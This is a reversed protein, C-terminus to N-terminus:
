VAGQMRGVAMTVARVAKELELEYIDLATVSLKDLLMYVQLVDSSLRTKM